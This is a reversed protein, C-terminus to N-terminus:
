IKIGSRTIRTYNFALSIRKKHSQNKRVGHRLDAPFLLLRNEQPDYEEDTEFYIRGMNKDPVEIYYVGSIADIEESHHDHMLNYHGYGNSNYWLSQLTYEPIQKEVFTQLEKLEDSWSWYVPSQWGGVNSKKSSLTTILITNHMYEQITKIDIELDYDRVM